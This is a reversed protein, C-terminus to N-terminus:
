SVLSTFSITVIGQSLTRKRFDDVRLSFIICRGVVKTRNNDDDNRKPGNVAREKSEHFVRRNGKMIIYIIIALCVLLLLLIITTDRDSRECDFIRSEYLGKFPYVGVGSLALARMRWLPHSASFFHFLVNNHIKICLRNHTLPWLINYCVVSYLSYFNLWNIHWACVPLTYM